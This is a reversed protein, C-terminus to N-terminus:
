GFKALTGERQLAMVGCIPLGSREPVNLNRQNAVIVNKRAILHLYGIV